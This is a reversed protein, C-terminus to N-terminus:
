HQESRRWEKGLTAREAVGLSRRRSTTKNLCQATSNQDQHGRRQNHRDSEGYDRIPAAVVEVRCSLTSRDGRRPQERFAPRRQGGSRAWEKFVPKGKVVNEIGALYSYEAMGHNGTLMFSLLYLSRMNEQFIRCYDARSAYRDDFEASQQTRFEFM